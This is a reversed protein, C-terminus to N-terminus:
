ICDRVGRKWDRGGDRTRCLLCALFVVRKRGSRSGLGEAEEAIM